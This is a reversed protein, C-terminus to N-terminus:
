NIEKDIEIPVELYVTEIRNIFEYDLIEYRVFPTRFIYFYGPRTLHNKVLDEGILKAADNLLEENNPLQFPKIDKVRRVIHDLPDKQLPKFPRCIKTIDVQSFYKPGDQLFKVYPKREEPLSDSVARSFEEQM